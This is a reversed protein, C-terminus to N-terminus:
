PSIYMLNLTNKLMIGYLSIDVMIVIKPSEKLLEKLIGGDGGGLVLVTKGEYTEEGGGTIARTYAIDSEALDISDYDSNENIQSVYVICMLAIYVHTNTYLTSRSVRALVLIAM